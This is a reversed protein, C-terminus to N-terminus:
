SRVAWCTIGMGMGVLKGVSLVADFGVREFRSFVGKASPLANKWRHLQFELPRFGVRGLLEHLSSPCFGVVHYPPFTPSLNVAWDTGRLRMYANGVRSMLSCENPVDIFVLGGPRLAERVRSLTEAPEYLHELIAALLVVDYTERLTEAEEVRVCEIDIGHEERAIRAFAETMEVGRVDWGRNAAGRLFEGRGCGVELMKGPQGLVGEAFAALREGQLIKQKPDHHRFYGEASWETYPNFEPLLMPRQYVGHCDSCRVVSTEIGRGERHARGGRAGLLRAASSGCIPCPRDIARWRTVPQGNRRTSRASLYHSRCSWCLSDRADSLLALLVVDLRNRHLQPEHTGTGSM